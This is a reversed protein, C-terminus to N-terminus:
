NKEEKDIDQYDEFQSDYENEIIKKHKKTFEFYKDLIECDNGNVELEKPINNFVEDSITSKYYQNLATCRGEKITQRVFNRMSLDSYTYITEEKEDRLSSFYKNALFPLTLSSKRGFGTLEEMGMTYRAYCFATSLVVNKLYPLWEKGKEEWIEEYIEGHELEQKILCSQLKYIKGINKLSDKIHLLGFRLHVYLSLKKSQDLYENFFKLSVIVAGNKILSIVNRWQHLNTLVDHNDFRSAKHALLILNYEVIKKQTELNEKSHCFM